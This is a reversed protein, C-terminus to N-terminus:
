STTREEELLGRAQEEYHAHAGRVTAGGQGLHGQHRDWRGAFSGPPEPTSFADAMERALAAGIRNLERASEALAYEALVLPTAGFTNTKLIDAGAQLYSAYIRPDPRRTARPQENCGEYVAGGFDFRRPPAGPPPEWRATWCWSASSCHGALGAVREAGM